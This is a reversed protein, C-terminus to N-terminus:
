NHPCPTSLKNVHAMAKKAQVGLHFISGMVVGIPLGILYYCGLNIYAVYAQWGSGVAVGSLVPQVSNLLITIALLYSLKDVEQLVEVGTAAFFALPVMIEWGNIAMCVSLAGVVITSKELHGTMLILIRYYWNELCLMVGSAVSLNLFERLGSFAQVSFGTWTKPCGGWMTYGLMGFVLVWWSVDLIIATGVLGLQLRYVFLWSLFLHIVLTASSVWALVSTKLQSQLFRQLSCQFAFSFHLPIFWLAVLGSQEAVDDPQGLLKLIPTAYIYLPLLLICCLLLVIWARQMYIGLMHYRKAGFAQGCLTELASAMGLTNAISVSALEIDGLHGAFAQTAINMSYSTLRGIISPGAVNWLKKTEIWVKWKLGREEEEEEEEVVLGGGKVSGVPEASVGLLPRDLVEGDDRNLRGMEKEWNRLATIIALIATQVGTGGFIMGGWIGGIGLNFVWGLLIGIPLGVFYYCALNIYAVWTQWGSGVAVGRFILVILCFFLGTITSQAVSVVMAFKAAKGNGAGLENAVRVCVSLADVAIKTDGLLGTLLLLIRYYWNEMSNLDEIM